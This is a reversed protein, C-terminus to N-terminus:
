LPVHEVATCLVIHMNIIIERSPDTHVEVVESENLFENELEDLFM